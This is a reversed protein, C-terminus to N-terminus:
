TQGGARRRKQGKRQRQVGGPRSVYESWQHGLGDMLSTAEARAARTANLLLPLTVECDGVIHSVEYDPLSNRVINFDFIAAGRAKAEELAEATVHVAFSTGIFVIAHAARMWRTAKRWQFFAHSEYLEDFFLSCPMCPKGCAECRPLEGELECRGDSDRRRLSLEPAPMAEAYAFRCGPNICKNLAHSGHVEILQNAQLVGSRQHLGDINQTIINVNPNDFALEALAEHAANPDYHRIDLTGDNTVVHAPLWFTNWWTRPDSEFKERTGWELVYQAWVSDDAGRFTPVGSPASLGSGSIILVRKGAQVLRALRQLESSSTSM